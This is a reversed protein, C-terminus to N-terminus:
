PSSTQILFARTVPGDRGAPPQKWYLRAGSSGMKQYRDHLPMERREPEAHVPGASREVSPAKDIIFGSGQQVRLAKEISFEPKM